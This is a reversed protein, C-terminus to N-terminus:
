RPEAEVVFGMIQKSKLTTAEAEAAARTDYRGIRVRFPAASGWVRAPYGRGTLKSALDDASGRENYAAVQVTFGPRSSVASAAPKAPAPTPTSAPASPVAPVAAPPAPTAAPKVNETVIKKTQVPAAAVVTTTANAAPCPRAAYDLQNRLEVDSAPATQRAASLAACAHPTDGLEFYARAVSLNTRPPTEAAARDHDLRGLHQRAETKDGRALELQALRLLADGSRPSLPYEVTVRRYDREADFVTAALSARTYLAEAYAESGPAALALVSDVMARGAAARGENVM